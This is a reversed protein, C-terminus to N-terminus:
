DNKTNDHAISEALVLDYSCATRGNHRLSHPPGPGTDFVCHDMHSTALRHPANVSGEADTSGGRILRTRRGLDTEVDSLTQPRASTNICPSPYKALCILERVCSRDSQEFHFRTNTTHVKAHVWPHCRTCPAWPTAHDEAM